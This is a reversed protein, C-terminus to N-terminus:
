WFFTMTGDDFVRARYPQWDHATRPGKEGDRIDGEEKPATDDFEEYRIINSNLSFLINGSDDGEESQQQQQLQQQNQQHNHKKQRETKM